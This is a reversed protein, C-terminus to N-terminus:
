AVSNSSQSLLELTQLIRAGTVPKILVTSKPYSKVEEFIDTMSSFSTILVVGIDMGSSSIHRVLDLGSMGPMMQDTVLFDFHVTDLARKADLGNMVTQVNYGASTLARSLNAIILVHDDALLIKKM